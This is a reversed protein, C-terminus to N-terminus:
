SAALTAAAIATNPTLKRYAQVTLAFANGAGSLTRELGEGAPLAWGDEGFDFEVVGVGPSSPLGAIVVTTTTLARVSATVAASTTVNFKIKQVYVTWGARAAILTVAATDAAVTQQQVSVDQFSRLTQVGSM